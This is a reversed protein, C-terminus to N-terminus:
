ATDKVSKGNVTAPVTVPGSRMWSATNIVAIRKSQPNTITALLNKELESIQKDADLMFQKKIAWQETVFPVDPETTSNHAGWTHEHFLLINKWAEYFRSPNYNKADLMAYLTTLQQLRLSNVRNKGEEYATSAAGDEWYPTIDG